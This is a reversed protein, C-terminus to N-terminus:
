AQRMRYPAIVAAGSIDRRYHREDAHGANYAIIAYHRRLSATALTAGRQGTRYGEARAYAGNHM